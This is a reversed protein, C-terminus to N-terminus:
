ALRFSAQSKRRYAMFGVGMFGLIMMAWTSPEPVSPGPGVAAVYGTLGAGGTATEWIDAAFIEPPLSALNALTLNQLTFTLENYQSGVVNGTGSSFNIANEWSLNNGNTAFPPSTFSGSALATLSANATTNAITNQLTIAGVLSPAVNPSLSWLLIQNTASAANFWVNTALQEVFQLNSGVETVTVTGYTALGGCGPCSETLNYIAAKAPVAALMGLGVIASFFAFKQKNM